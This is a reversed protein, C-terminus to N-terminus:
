LKIHRKAEDAKLGKEIEDEISDSKEEITDAEESEAEAVKEGDAEVEVKVDGDDSDIANVEINKGGFREKLTQIQSQISAVVQAVYEDEPISKDGSDYDSFVKDYVDFDDGEIAKIDEELPGFSESYKDKFESKRNNHDWAKYNAEAPEVFREYIDKKFEEIQKNYDDLKRTFGDIMQALENTTFEM